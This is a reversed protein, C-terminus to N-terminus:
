GASRTGTTGTTGPQSPGPQAPASGGAPRLLIAAVAGALAVVLIGARVDDTAALGVASDVSLGGPGTGLIAAAGGLLVLPFEIGGNRNWFGKSWHGRVIIVISQAVLLAAVVPTAAGAALLLGGALETLGSVLAWLRAPRLGMRAMAATWGSFGPGSWWGFVKQAGHAAYVGGVTLRLALLGLDASTM